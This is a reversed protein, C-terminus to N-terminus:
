LLTLNLLHSFLLSFVSSFPCSSACSKDAGFILYVIDRDASKCFLLSNTLCNFDPPKHQASFWHWIWSVNLDLSGCLHCRCHGGTCLLWAQAFCGPLKFTSRWIGAVETTMASCWHGFNVHSCCTWDCLNSLNVASSCNLQTKYVINVTQRRCHVWNSMGFM